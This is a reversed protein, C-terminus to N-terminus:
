EELEETPIIWIRKLPLEAKIEESLKEYHELLENVIDGADWLRVDFFNRLMEKYVTQKFGGWSVFLGHTAGFNVMAGQLERVVKVDATDDSSKVQVALKPESFGMPGSGAIIDIGGDAGPPSVLAHYGQATLLEGILWALDHGRFRRSILERIQEQGFEEINPLAESSDIETDNLIALPVQRGEVVAKVRDEANNRQIRCVTLFAGFSYLIDQDFRSRSMDTTLWKIPRTHKADLPSDPNFEYDGTVQGIAIASRRKLPLAVWDGKSILNAFTWIQSQWNQRTKPKRDPYVEGIYEGLKKRNSIKSLDGLDDWGIVVRSNEIAFNENEGSSGARVLWLAM